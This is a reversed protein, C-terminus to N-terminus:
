ILIYNASNRQRLTSWPQGNQHEDIVQYFWRHAFLQKGLVVTCHLHQFSIKPSKLATDQQKSGSLILMVLFNEPGVTSACERNEWGWPCIRDRRPSQLLLLILEWLSELVLPVLMVRRVMQFWCEAVERRSSAFPLVEGQQDLSLSKM